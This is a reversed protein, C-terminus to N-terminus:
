AATDPMWGLAVFQVTTHGRRPRLTVRELQPEAAFRDTIARVEREIEAELEKERERIAALNEEARKIDGAEKKSRGWGRVATTARGVGRSRGRGFLVSAITAGISVTTQLQAQSAQASERELAAEARRIRDELRARKSAYKRRLDAVAEDRAARRDDQLRIRFDRETEGARATLKLEPERLVHLQQERGVFGKFAREWAAYRKPDLAPSPLAAFESEPRPEPELSSAPLDLERATTWDLDVARDAVTAAYVVDRHDAIGLKADSFEVRAGAIIAPM